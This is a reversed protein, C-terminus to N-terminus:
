ILVTDIERRGTTANHCCGQITTVLGSPLGLPQQSYHGVPHAFQQSASQTSGERHFLAATIFETIYQSETRFAASWVRPWERRPPM